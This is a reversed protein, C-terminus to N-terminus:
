LGIDELRGVTVVKPHRKFIQSDSIIRLCAVSAYRFLVTIKLVHATVDSASFCALLFLLALLLSVFGLSAVTVASSSQVIATMLFGSFIGRLPTNTWTTLIRRLSSGAAAKLGETM